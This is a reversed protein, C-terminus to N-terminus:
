RRKRKDRLLRRFFELKKTDDDEREDTVRTAAEIHFAACATPVPCTFPMGNEISIERSYREKHLLPHRQRAYNFGVKALISEEAGVQKGGQYVCISRADLRPLSFQFDESKTDYNHTAQVFDAFFQSQEANPHLRKATNRVIANSFVHALYLKESLSKLSQKLAAFTFLKDANMILMERVALLTSLRIRDVNPPKNGMSQRASLLFPCYVEMAFRRVAEIVTHIGHLDPDSGKQPGPLTSHTGVGCEQPVHSSCASASHKMASLLAGNASVKLSCHASNPADSAEETSGEANKSIIMHPRNTLEFMFACHQIEDAVGDIVDDVALKIQLDGTDTKNSLLKARKPIGGACPASSYKNGGGQVHIPKTKSVNGSNAKKATKRKKTIPENNEQSSLSVLGGSKSDTKAPGHHSELTSSTGEGVEAASISSQKSLTSPLPVSVGGQFSETHVTTGSALSKPGARGGSKKTLLKRARSLSAKAGKLTRPKAIKKTRKFPAQAAPLAASAAVFASAPKENLQAHTDRAGSAASDHTESQGGQPPHNLATFSQKCLFTTTEETSSRGPKVHPHPNLAISVKISQSTTTSSSEDIIAFGDNLYKLTPM